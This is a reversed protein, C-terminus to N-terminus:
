ISSDNKLPKLIWNKGLDEIWNKQIEKIKWDSFDDFNAKKPIYKRILKNANEISGKQWSSYSDAFYVIIQKRGKISLRKTKEQHAAFESGNDTTITHLTQRYPFLLGVVTKAVPNAKRGQPLKEM